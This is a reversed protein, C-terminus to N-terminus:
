VTLYRVPHTRVFAQLTTFGLGSKNAGTVLITKGQIKRPFAKAVDIADTEANFETHTTFSKNLLHLPIM